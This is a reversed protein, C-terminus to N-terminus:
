RGNSLEKEILDAIVKCQKDNIKSEITVTGDDTGDTDLVVLVNNNVTISWEKSNVTKTYHSESANNFCDEEREVEELESDFFVILHSYDTSIDAQLDFGTQSPKINEITFM